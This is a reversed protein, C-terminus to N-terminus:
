APKQGVCRDIPVLVRKRVGRLLPLIPAGKRPPRGSKQEEMVISLGDRRMVLAVAANLAPGPLLKRGSINDPNRSAHGVLEHEIARM